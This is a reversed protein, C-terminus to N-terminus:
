NGGQGRIPDVVIVITGSNATCTRKNGKGQAGIVMKCSGCDYYTREKDIKSQSFCDVVNGPIPESEIASANQNVPNVAALAVVASGALLMISVSSIILAKIKSM